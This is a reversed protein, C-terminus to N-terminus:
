GYKCSGDGGEAFNERGWNRVGECRKGDEGGGAGGALGLCVEWGHFGEFGEGVVMVVVVGGGCGADM